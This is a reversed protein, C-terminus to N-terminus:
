AVKKRMIYRFRPNVRLLTESYVGTFIKRPGCHVGLWEKQAITNSESIQEIPLVPPGVAVPGEHQGSQRLQSDSPHPIPM